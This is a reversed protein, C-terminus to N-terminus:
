GDAPRAGAEALDGEMIRDGSADLSQMPERGLEIQADVQDRQAAGGSLTATGRM